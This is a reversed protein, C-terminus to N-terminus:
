QFQLPVEAHPTSPAMASGQGNPRCNGPRCVTCQFSTMIECFSLSPCFMVTSRASSLIWWATDQLLFNFLLAGSGSLILIALVCFLNGGHLMAPALSRMRCSHRYLVSNDGERWVVSVCKAKFLQEWIERSVRLALGKLCPQTASQRRANWPTRVVDDTTAANTTVTSGYHTFAGTNPMAGNNVHCGM